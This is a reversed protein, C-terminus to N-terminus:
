KMLSMKKTDEGFDTVLRYLYLASAVTRGTEDTGNWQITHQGAEYKGNALTMIKQGLINYVELSVEGAEPLGFEIITSANFPNPYADGLYFEDPVLETAAVKPSCNMDVTVNAEFVIGDTFAGTIKAPYIGATCPDSLALIAASRSFPAELVDGAFGAMYPRIRARGRYLPVQGNFRVTSIDVDLASYGDPWDGLYARVTGRPDDAWSCCWPM